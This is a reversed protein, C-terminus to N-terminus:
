MCLTSIVLGPCAGTILVYGRRAALAGLRQVRERCGDLIVGGASGMVGITVGPFSPSDFQKEM